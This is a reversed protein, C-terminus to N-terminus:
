TEQLERMIVIELEEVLNNAIRASKRDKKVLKVVNLAIWM